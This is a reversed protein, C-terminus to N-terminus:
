QKQEKHEVSPTNPSEAGRQGEAQALTAAYALWGERHTGIEAMQLSVGTLAETCRARAREHAERMKDFAVREAVSWPGRAHLDSVIRSTDTNARELARWNKTLSAEELRRALSLLPGRRDM